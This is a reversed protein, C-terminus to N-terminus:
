FGHPNGLTNGSLIYTLIFTMSLFRVMKVGIVLFAVMMLLEDSFGEGLAEPFGVLFRRVGMFSVICCM